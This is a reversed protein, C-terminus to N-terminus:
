KIGSGSYNFIFTSLDPKHERKRQLEYQYIDEGLWKMFPYGLEEYDYKDDNIIGDKNCYIVASLQFEVQHDFDAMYAIDLLFGYADGEKNFIRLGPILAAKKDAGYLLFKGYAPYYEASDYPPFDSETPYESMYKRVLLLDDENLRFRQDAKVSEPFMVSRLIHHLSALSIKNKKSFDFPQEILEGNKMYGKGVSDHRTQYPDENYELPQEYLKKGANDYFIIPNTHRNEDESLVIDLRHIIEADPYGKEKLTQNLYKQGLFEYMRNEADNDSVLFVKRVYQAINPRGDPTSPDNYVPTQSGYGRETIMTTGSRLGPKKLLNLKELALLATPLKVTSAPYFYRSPDVNFYYDRFRPKNDRDRDIQTYIVQIKLSDRGALFPALREDQMLIQELLGPKILEPKGGAVTDQLPPTVPEPTKKLHKSGSCSLFFLSIGLVIVSASKNM